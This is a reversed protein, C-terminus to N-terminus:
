HKEVTYYVDKIHDYNAAIQRLTDNAKLDAAIVTDFHQSIRILESKNEYFIFHVAQHPYIKTLYEKFHFPVALKLLINDRYMRKTEKIMTELNRNKELDSCFLLIARNYDYMCSSNILALDIEERIRALEINNKIETYHHKVITPTHKERLLRGANKRKENKEETNYSKSKYHYIYCDDAVKLKFGANVARICYDDEGGYCPFNIEDQDGIKEIVSRNIMYCFGNVQNVVPFIRKSQQEIFYAMQEITLEKGGLKKLENVTGGNGNVDKPVSQYSASNSLPGVIGTSSESEMCDMLKELWHISVITDSNLLVCYKSTFLKLGQNSAITYDTKSNNTKLKCDYKRAFSALYDKTEKESGSDVIILNFPITKKAILSELCLKVYELANYVCVIVDITHSRNLNGSELLRM